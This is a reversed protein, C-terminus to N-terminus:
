GAPAAVPEDAGRKAKPVVSVAVLGLVAAAAFVYFSFPYALDAAVLTGTLWPGTIAGLRGVASVFGMGSAVIHRPYLYGVFGYVLVQACFVFFGTVLVVGNLVLQNEMRISLIVLLVAASAFWFMTTGKVGRRDAVRGGTLLGAIAGVNLVLLLVLSDAVNYGAQRMLQPLWTNLGYVLLLGMFAAVWLGLTIRLYPKRLLDGVRVKPAAAKDAKVAKVVPSTEPLKAWMLPVALLGLIGGAYFLWQWNAGVLLAVVSAAVAGVHYGTMTLTSSHAKRESSSAEQMATIAIPMCGGLGLGALLRLLGMTAVTPMLPFLLTFISFLLVCIILPLRRGFRDSIPGILAAGIGVGVLSITAVFTAGAADIGAHQTDLLTPISAGLAVLDFGEFVVTLWCLIVVWKRNQTQM